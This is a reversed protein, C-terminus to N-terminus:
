IDDYFQKISSCKAIYIYIYIYIYKKNLKVERELNNRSLIHSPGVLLYPLFPLVGSFFCRACRCAFM